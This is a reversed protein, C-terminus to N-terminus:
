SNLQSIRLANLKNSIKEIQERLIAYDSDLIYNLENAIIIQSLVEM